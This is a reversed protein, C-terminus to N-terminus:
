EWAGREWTSARVGEPWSLFREVLESWDEKSMLNYREKITLEVNLAPNLYPNTAQKDAIGM